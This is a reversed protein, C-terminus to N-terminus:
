AAPAPSAATPASAARLPRRAGWRRALSRAAGCSVNHARVHRIHRRGGVNACARFAPRPSVVAITAAKVVLDAQKSGLFLEDLYACVAYTGAQAVRLTGTVSGPGTVEVDDAVIAPQGSIAGLNRSTIACRTGRVVLVTLYRSVEAQYDVTIAFPEGISVRRPATATLRLVPPRVTVTTSVPPGSAAFEDEIWACIRYEGPEDAVYSGVVSFAGSVRGYAPPSFLVPDGPDQRETAACPAQVGPRIRAEVYGDGDRLATVDGAFGIAFASDEVAATPPPAITATVDHAGAQAVPMIAGLVVLAIARRM